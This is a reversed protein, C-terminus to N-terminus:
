QQRKSINTHESGKLIGEENNFKTFLSDSDPDSFVCVSVCVSVCVCVCVCVSVCARM